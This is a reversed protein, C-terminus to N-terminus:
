TCDELLSNLNLSESVSTDALVILQDVSRTAGVYLLDRILPRPVGGHEESIDTLIVIPSELGKFRRISDWRVKSSTPQQASALLGSWAPEKALRAAASGTAACGSLVVIENARFGENLLRQLTGALALETSDSTSVILQPPVGLDPRLCSSYAYDSPLAAISEAFLTVSKTNRCNRRLRRTFVRRGAAEELMAHPDTHEGALQVAQNEFDGFFVWRGDRLGGEICEDFFMLNEATLVDQAEDVILVDFPQMRSKFRSAATLPLEENWFHSDDDPAPRLGSVRLMFAKLRTATAGYDMPAVQQELWDGLLQNYCVLLGSRDEEATRRLLELALLTKGCGAPGLVLLQGNEDFDDLTDFQEETYRKIEEDRRQQRAAASVYFEFRPRLTEAIHSADFEAQSRGESDRERAILRGIAKVLGSGRLTARGISQWENWEITKADMAESRIDGFPTVVGSCFFPRKSFGLGDLYRLMARMAADGQEFPSRPSAHGSGYDWSRDPLQRAVSKVELVAVGEGPVIVVFDAEGRRRDDSPAIDLSHLVIWDSPASSRLESFVFEEGGSKYDALYRNPIM